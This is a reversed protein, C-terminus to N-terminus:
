PKAPALAARAITVIERKSVLSGDGLYPPETCADRIKELAVEYREVWETLREIREAQAAERCDCGRWHTSGPNEPDCNM